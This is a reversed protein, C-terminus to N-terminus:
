GQDEQRISESRVSLSKIKGTLKLTRLLGAVRNDIFAIIDTIARIHM